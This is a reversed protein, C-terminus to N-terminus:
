LRVVGSGCVLAGLGRRRSGKDRPSARGGTASHSSPGHGQSNPSIPFLPYVPHTQCGKRSVTRGLPTPTTAHGPQSKGILDEIWNSSKDKLSSAILIHCRPSQQSVCVVGYAKWVFDDTPSSCSGLVTLLQPKM